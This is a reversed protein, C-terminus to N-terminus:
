LPYIELYYSYWDSAIRTQATNIDIDRSCVHDCLYNELKDKEHYGPMTEFQVFLNKESNSGGLCLPIIHDLETTGTPQPYPVNDRAFVELRLSQPVDRVTASYGSVCIITLNNTLIDGPALSPNPLIKSYSLNVVCSNTCTDNNIATADFPTKYYNNYVYFGMVILAILSVVSLLLGEAKKNNM